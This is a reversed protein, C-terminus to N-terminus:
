YENLEDRKSQWLLSLGSQIEAKYKKQKYHTQVESDCFYNHIPTDRRDSASEQTCNLFYLAQKDDIIPNVHVNQQDFLVKLQSKSWIRWLKDFQSRIIESCLELTTSSLKKDTPIYTMGNSWAEFCNAIQKQQSTYFVSSNVMTFYGTGNTVDPFKNRRMYEEFVPFVFSALDIEALILRAVFVELSPEWDPLRYKYTCSIFNTARAPGIHKCSARLLPDLEIRWSTPSALYNFMWVLIPLTQAQLDTFAAINGVVAAGAALKLYKSGLDKWQQDDFNIPM